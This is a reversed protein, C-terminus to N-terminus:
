RYTIGTRGTKEVFVGEDRLTLPWNPHNESRQQKSLLSINLASPKNGNM